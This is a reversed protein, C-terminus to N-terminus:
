GMIDCVQVFNTNRSAENLKRFQKEKSFDNAATVNSVIMVAVLIALSEIFEASDKGKKVIPNHPDFDECPSVIETHYFSLGLSVAAAVCLVIMTTDKMAELLLM